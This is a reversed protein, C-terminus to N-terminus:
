IVGKFNTAAMGVVIFSTNAISVSGNYSVIFTLIDLAGPTNTLTITTGGGVKIHTSYGVGGETVITALQTGIGTAATTNYGVAGQTVLVTFLKHVQETQQFELLPYLELIQLPQTLLYLEKLQM